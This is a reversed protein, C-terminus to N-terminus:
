KRADWPDYFDLARKYGAHTSSALDEFDFVDWMVPQNSVYSVGTAELAANLHTGRRLYPSRFGMATISAKAFIERARRLHALQEEPTLQSYDIHTYGHVIFEIGQAQYKQIIPRNRSLVVTTVPLTARGDPEQLLQSFQELSRDMQATTLGYRKGLLWARKFLATPSKGKLATALLNISRTM